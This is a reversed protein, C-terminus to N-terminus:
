FFHHFISMILRGLLQFFGVVLRWLLGLIGDIIFEIIEEFLYHRIKKKHKEKEKFPKM